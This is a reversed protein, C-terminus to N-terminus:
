GDRTAFEYFRNFTETQTRLYVHAPLLDRAAEPWTPPFSGAPEASPEAPTGGTGSQLSKCSQEVAGEQVPDAAVHACFGVALVAALGGIKMRRVRLTTCRTASEPKAIAPGNSFRSPALGANKAACSIVRQSTTPNASITVSTGGSIRAPVSASTPRADFGARSATWRNNMARS